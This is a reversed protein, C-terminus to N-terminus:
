PSAQSTHEITQDSRIAAGILCVVCGFAFLLFTFNTLFTFPANLAAHEGASNTNTEDNPTQYAVLALPLTDNPAFSATALPIQVESGSGSNYDPLLSNDESLMPACPEKSLSLVAEMNAIHVEM